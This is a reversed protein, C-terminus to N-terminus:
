QEWQPWPTILNSCYEWRWLCETYCCVTIVCVFRGPSMLPWIRCWLMWILHSPCAYWWVQKILIVFYHSFLIKGQQLSLSDWRTQINHTSSNNCWELKVCKKKTYWWVTGIMEYWEINSYVWKTFRQLSQRSPTLFWLQVQYFRHVELIFWYKM